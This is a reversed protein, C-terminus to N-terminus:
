MWLVAVHGAGDQEVVDRVAIQADVGPAGRCQAIRPLVGQRQRGLESLKLRM